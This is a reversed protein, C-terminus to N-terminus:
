PLFLRQEEELLSAQTGPGTTESQLSRNNATLRRSSETEKDKLPFFVFCCCCFCSESHKALHIQIWVVRAQYNQVHINIEYLSNYQPKNILWKQKRLYVKSEKILM